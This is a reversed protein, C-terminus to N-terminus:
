PKHTMDWLRFPAYLVTYIPIEWIPRQEYTPSKPASAREVSDGGHDLHDGPVAGTLEDAKVGGSTKSTLPNQPRNASIM